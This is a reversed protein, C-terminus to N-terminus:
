CGVLRYPSPNGLFARVWGLARQWPTAQAEVVPIETEAADYLGARVDGLEFWELVQRGDAGWRGLERESVNKRVSEVQWAEIPEWTRNRRCTIVWRGDIRTIRM